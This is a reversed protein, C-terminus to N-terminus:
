LIPWLISLKVPHVGVLGVGLGQLLRMSENPFLGSPMLPHRLLSDAVAPTLRTRNVGQGSRPRITIGTGLHRRAPDVVGPNLWPRNVGQGSRPTLQERRQMCPDSVTNHLYKRVQPLPFM